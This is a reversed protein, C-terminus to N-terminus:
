TKANILKNIDKYNIRNTFVEGIAKTIGHVYSILLILKQKRLVANEPTDELKFLFHQVKHSFDSLQRRDKHIYAM